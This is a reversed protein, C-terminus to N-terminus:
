KVPTEVRIFEEATERIGERMTFVPNFSLMKKTFSNDLRVSGYLREYTEPFVRSIIKMIAQPPRFLITQKRYSEAIYNVLETISSGENDMAIFIGPLKLEIIRDIFGALNKTYSYNRKNEINAFPLVPFFRVLNFLKMMNAKMGLGYVVPTRIISVCFDTSGLRKLEQEAEYKSKGYSDEPNCETFEDWPKSGGKFEGYVKVTSMFIFHRVGAAKAAKALDATMDCNVKRYVEEDLKGSFHVIAALHLVADVERFDVSAPAYDKLSVFKIEKNRSFRKFGKGIFGNKGTILIM